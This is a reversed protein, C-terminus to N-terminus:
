RLWCFTEATFASELPHCTLNSRGLIMDPAPELTWTNLISGSAPARAPELTARVGGDTSEWGTLRNTSGDTPQNTWRLGAPTQESALVTHDRLSVCKWKSLIDCLMLVYRQYNANAGAVSPFHYIACFAFNQFHYILNYTPGIHILSYLPGIPQFSTLTVYPSNAHCQHTPPAFLSLSSFQQLSFYCIDLKSFHCTLLDLLALWSFAGRELHRMFFKCPVPPVCSWLFLLLTLFCMLFSCQDPHSSCFSVHLPCHESGLVQM